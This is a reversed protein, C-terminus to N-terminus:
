FCDCLFIGLVVVTGFVVVAGIPGLESYDERNEDGVKEIRDFM